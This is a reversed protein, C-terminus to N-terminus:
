QCQPSCADVRVLSDDLRDVCAGALSVRSLFAKEAATAAEADTDVTPAGPFPWANLVISVYDRHMFM